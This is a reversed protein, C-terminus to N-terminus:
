RINGPYTGTILNEWNYVILARTTGFEEAFLSADTIGGSLNLIVLDFHRALFPVLLNAFSDKVVLLREREETKSFVTQINHTGDLLAGYKDKESLYDRNMWGDFSKYPELSKKPKGDEGLFTVRAFADLKQDLRSKSKAM